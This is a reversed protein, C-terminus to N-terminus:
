SPPATRRTERVHFATAPFRRGNVQLGISYAGPTLVTTATSRLLHDKALQLEQDPEATDRRLFYVKERPKGGPTTSSIVFTVHM